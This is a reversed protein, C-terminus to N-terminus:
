SNSREWRERAEREKVERMGAKAQRIEELTPVYEGTRAFAACEGCLPYGRQLRRPEM